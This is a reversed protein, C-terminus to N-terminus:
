KKGQVTLGEIRNRILNVQYKIQEKEKEDVPLENVLWDIKSCFKLIDLLELIETLKM